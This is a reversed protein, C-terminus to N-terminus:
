FEIFKLKKKPLISIQETPLRVDNRYMETIRITENIKHSPNDPLSAMVELAGMAVERGSGIAAFKRSHFHVDGHCDITIIRKNMVLLLNYTKEKAKGFKREYQKFLEGSVSNVFYDTLKQGPQLLPWKFTFRIFTLECFEGCFGIAVKKTRSIKRTFIKVSRPGERDMDVFGNDDTCGTDAGIFAGQDTVIGIVITM